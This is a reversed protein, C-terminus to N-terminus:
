THKRIIESQTTSYILTQCRTRNQFNVLHVICCQRVEQKAQDARHLKFHSSDLIM